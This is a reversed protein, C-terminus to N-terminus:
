LNKEVTERIKEYSAKQNEAIKELIQEQRDVISKATVALEKNVMISHLISDRLAQFNKQIQEHARNLQFVSRSWLVVGVMVFMVVGARYTHKWVEGSMLEQSFLTKTDFIDFFEGFALMTELTDL